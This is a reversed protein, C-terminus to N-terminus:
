CQATQQLATSFAPTHCPCPLAPRHLDSARYPTKPLVPASPPQQQSERLEKCLAQLPTAQRRRRTCVRRMQGCRAAYTAHRGHQALCAEEGKCLSNNGRCFCGVRPEEEWHTSVCLCLLLLQWSSCAPFLQMQFRKPPRPNPPPGLTFIPQCPQAPRRHHPPSCVSVSPLTHAHTQTKVHPARAVVGPLVVDNKQHPKTCATAHQQRSHKLRCSLHNHQPPAGTAFADSSRFVPYSRRAPHPNDCCSPICLRHPTRHGLGQAYSGESVGPQGAMIRDPPQNPDAPIARVLHNHCREHNPWNQCSQRVGDSYSIPWGPPM